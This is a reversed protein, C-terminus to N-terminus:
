LAGRRCDCFKLYLNEHNIMWAKLKIPSYHPLASCTSDAICLLLGFFPRIPQGANPGSVSINEYALGIFYKNKRCFETLHSAAEYETIDYGQSLKYELRFLLMFAYHKMFSVILILCHMSNMWQPSIQQFGFFNMATNLKLLLTKLSHM